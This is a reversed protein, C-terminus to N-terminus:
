LLCSLFDLKDKPQMSCLHSILLYTSVQYYCLQLYNYAEVSEYLFLQDKHMFEDAGVFDLQSFKCKLLCLTSLVKKEFFLLEENFNEALILDKKPVEHCQRRCQTNINKYSKYAKIATEFNTACSQWDNELYSTKGVDFLDALSKRRRHLCFVRTTNKEDFCLGFFFILAVFFVFEQVHQMM